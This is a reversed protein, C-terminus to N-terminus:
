STRITLTLNSFADIIPCVVSSNDHLDPLSNAPHQSLQSSNQDPETRFAPNDDHEIAATQSIVLSLSALIDDM